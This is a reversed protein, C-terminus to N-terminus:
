VQIDCVLGDPLGTSTTYNSAAIRAQERERSNFVLTEVEATRMDIVEGHKQLDTRPYTQSICAYGRSDQQSIAKWTQKNTAKTLYLQLAKAYQLEAARIKPENPYKKFIALEVDDRIGNANADIGEVTADVFAPDPVPPLNSGDVDSATLRQARIEAVTEMSKQKEMLMPGRWIVLAIYAVVLIVLPWKVWKWIKRLTGRGSNGNPM